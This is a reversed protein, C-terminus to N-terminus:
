INCGSEDCSCGSGSESISEKGYKEIADVFDETSIAGPIAINGIIFCPVSTIGLNKAVNEDNIVDEKYQDSNLMNKIDEADLGAAKGIETLVEPDSLNLNKTFNADFLGYNLKQVTLSDYAQEALKMLRHADFTNSPKVGGFNFDIGEGKGAKDVMAIRKQAAEPSLNYKSALREVTTKDSNKPANPDLQFSRYVLNIKGGLGAKTIASDLRKEGIYCWPCAFDSFININIM